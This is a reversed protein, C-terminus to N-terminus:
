RSSSQPSGRRSNRRRKWSSRTKMKERIDMGAAPLPLTQHCEPFGLCGFFDQKTLRNTRVVMRIQCSACHTTRTSAAGALLATDEQVEVEWMSLESVLQTKWGVWHGDSPRAYDPVRRVPEETEGGRVRGEVEAGAHHDHSIVAVLRVRRPKLTICPCCATRRTSTQNSDRTNASARRLSM